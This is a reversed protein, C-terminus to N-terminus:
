IRKTKLEQAHKKIDEAKMNAPPKYKYKSAENESVRLVKERINFAM